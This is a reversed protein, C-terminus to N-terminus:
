YAVPPTSMIDCNDGANNVNRCVAIEIKYADSFTRDAASMISGVNVNVGFSRVSGHGCVEHRSEWGSGGATFWTGIPGTSYHVKPRIRVYACSGDSATDTVRGSVYYSM